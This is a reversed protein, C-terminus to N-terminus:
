RQEETDQLLCRADFWLICRLRWRVSLTGMSMFLLCHVPTRAVSDEAAHSCSLGRSPVGDSAAIDM